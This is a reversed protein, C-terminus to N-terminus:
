GQWAQCVANVIDNAGDPTVMLFAAYTVSRAFTLRQASPSPQLSAAQLPQQEGATVQRGSGQVPQTQSGESRVADAYAAPAAPAAPAPLKAEHRCDGGRSGHSGAGATAQQQLLSSASAVGAGAVGADANSASSPPQPQQTHPRAAQSAMPALMDHQAAHSTPPREPTASVVAASAEAASAEAAPTSSRLSRRSSQLARKAQQAEAIYVGM